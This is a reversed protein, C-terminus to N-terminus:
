SAVNITPVRLGEHGAREHEIAAHHQLMAAIPATVPYQTHEDHTM